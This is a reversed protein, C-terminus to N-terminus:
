AKKTHSPRPVKRKARCRQRVSAYLTKYKVEVGHPRRVWQRLAEYAAFGEPRRLAEELSALIAPALSVAKGAPVDTAVLAPLGGAADIALWRGITHRHGGLRQAVDQRSHAPGSALLDLMQLRPQKHGDHEYHRHPRLEKVHERICPTVRYM